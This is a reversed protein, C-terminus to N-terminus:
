KLGRRGHALIAIRSRAHNLDVRNQVGAITGVSTYQHLVAKRWPATYRNPIGHDTGDNPGWAALWLGAGNGFPHEFGHAAIFAPGTYWMVRQGTLEHVKAGFTRAWTYLAASPLNGDDTELDLAPHLDRLEVKGLRSAFLKAQTVADGKGPRAFHYGGVHLGATRAARSRSLWTGDIFTRGESVKLMVGFAGAAHMARFDIPDPNNNSLDVVLTRRLM